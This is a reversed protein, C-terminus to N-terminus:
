VRTLCMAHAIRPVKILSVLHCPSLLFLAYCIFVLM